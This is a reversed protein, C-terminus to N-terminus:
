KAATPTGWPDSVRESTLLTDDTLANLFTLLDAKEQPTLDIKVILGSKLPSMAGDGTNPGREIERVGRSYIDIVEELTAVTGDHMYPGTVAINRLSPARFKGMDDPNGFVDLLGRNPM